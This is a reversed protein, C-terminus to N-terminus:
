CTPLLTNFDKGYQTKWDMFVTCKEMEKPSTKEDANQRKLM